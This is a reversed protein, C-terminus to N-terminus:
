LDLKLYHAGAIPNFYYPPIEVFGLAEYLGRAVHMDDLTDLLLTQYGQARAHTILVETLQRGLGIGRFRNPVFVRKLECADEYDAEPLPKFAGCGADVGDLTALVLMGHPAAYEGPLGALEADFQQFCLDVQLSGAYEIFLQRVSALQATSTAEVILPKQFSM